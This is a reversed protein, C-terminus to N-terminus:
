AFICVLYKFVVTITGCLVAGWLTDIVVMLPQWSYIVTYNTCEYVGYVILGYLAGYLWTNVFNEYRVRPLVLGYMGAIILCWVIIVSVIHTVNMHAAPRILHILWNIYRERMFYGIWFLDLLAYIFCCCVCVLILKLKMCNVEHVIYM